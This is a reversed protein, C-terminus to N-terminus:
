QEIRPLQWLDWMHGDTVAVISGKTTLMCNIGRAKALDLTPQISYKINSATALEPRIVAHFERMYSALGHHPLKLIDASLADGHIEALSKQANNEVDAALLISRNGLSVVSIMSRENQTASVKGWAYFNLQANGLRLTDGSSLLQVPINREDLLTFLAKATKNIDGKQMTDSYLFCDVDIYPLVDLYGGIHDEHFHSAFAYDLRHIDLSALYDLVRGAESLNGCDVLINMGDMRLLICDASKVNILHVELQGPMNLPPASQADAHYRIVSMPEEAMGPLCFFLCLLVLVVSVHLRRM